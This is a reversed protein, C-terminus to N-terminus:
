VHPGRSSKLSGPISRVFYERDTVLTKVMEREPEWTPLGYEIEEQQYRAYRLIALYTADLFGPVIFVERFQRALRRHTNTAPRGVPWLAFRAAHFIAFYARPIARSALPKALFRRAAELEEQARELEHPQASQGPITM